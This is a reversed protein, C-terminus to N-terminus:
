LFFSCNVIIIHTQKHIYTSIYDSIYSTVNIKHDDFCPCVNTTMLCEIYNRKEIIKRHVFLLKHEFSNIKLNINKHM